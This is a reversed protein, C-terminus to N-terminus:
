RFSKSLRNFFSCVGIVLKQCIEIFSAFVLDEWGEEFQEHIEFFELPLESNDQFAVEFVAMVFGDIFEVLKESSFVREEITAISSWGDLPVSGFASM